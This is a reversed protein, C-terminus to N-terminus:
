NTIYRGNFDRGIILTIDARYELNQISTGAPGSGEALPAESRINECRIVAAFNEAVDEFGSRDIVVTAGYDSRGANGISIVDYGFGRLLEATRGALGATTTGNLVEVTFVREDEAGEAQRTLATLAYRVFEKIQSGEYFPILLSQGSVERRAGGVSQISLRDTDINALEGFVRQWTRAPMGTRITEGFLPVLVPTAFIDTRQRLRRLLAVFFRQRRFVADEADDGGPATFTLWSRAKDGDLRVLGSPFFVPNGPEYIAVPAPVFIDVGELIDVLRVLSAATFIVHFNIDVGLLSEVEQEFPGVRDSSYVRDIRDVRDISKLIRGVEGPITFAAAKRTRPYYMLVYSALPKGADEFVFLTNIVRDGSLAEEIPDQQLFFAIFAAGAVVLLVILVLLAFSGRNNEAARRATNM